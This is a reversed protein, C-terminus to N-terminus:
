SLVKNSILSVNHKDIFYDEMVIAGDSCCIYYCDNIYMIQGPVGYVSLSSISAKWITIKTGEYFSYAGAYPRSSARILRMIDIVNSSWNILSDEPKRQGCYSPKGIQSRSSLGGEKLSSLFRDLLMEISENSKNILDEIYDGDEISFEIQGYIDGDDVGGSLEFLSVGTEKFGKIIAWNLPAGGRLEPLLSAHFGLCGKSFFGRLKKPIMYYWGVVIACIEDIDKINHSIFDEIVRDANEYSFLPIKNKKALHNLDCYRSNRVGQANYSIKFVEPSTVIAALECGRQTMVEIVNKTAETSGFIVFKM